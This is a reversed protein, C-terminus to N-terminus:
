QSTSLSNQAGYEMILPQYMMAIDCGTNITEVLFLYLVQPVEASKLLAASHIRVLYRIWPADRRYFISYFRLLISPLRVEQINPLLVIGLCLIPLEDDCFPLCGFPGPCHSDSTSHLHARATIATPRVGYLIMNMYTGILM